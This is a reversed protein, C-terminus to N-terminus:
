QNDLGASKFEAQKKYVYLEYLRQCEKNAELRSKYILNNANQWFPPHPDLSPSWSSYYNFTEISYASDGIENILTTVRYSGILKRQEKWKVEDLYLKFVVVCVLLVGILVFALANFNNPKITINNKPRYEHM